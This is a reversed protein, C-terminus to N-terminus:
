NNKPVSHIVHQHEFYVTYGPYVWRTIPPEGVAPLKNTPTGFHLEVQKMHQGRAPLANNSSANDQVLQETSSAPIEVVDSYAVTSVMTLIAAVLCTTKQRM